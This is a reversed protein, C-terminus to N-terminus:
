IVSSRIMKVEPAATSVFEDFNVYKNIEDIADTM